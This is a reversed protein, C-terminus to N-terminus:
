KECLVHKGHAVAELAIEAHTFNPTAIVVAHIDDRKVIEKYDRSTIAAGTAVRARELAAEDSDCVAAVKVGPCLVRGPLHNQLSVGGCGVIAFHIPNASM